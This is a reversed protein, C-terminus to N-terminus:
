HNKINYFTKESKTRLLLKYIKKLSKQFNKYKSFYYICCYLYYHMDNFTIYVVFHLKLFYIM